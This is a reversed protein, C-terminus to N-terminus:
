TTEVVPGSQVSEDFYEAGDAMTPGYVKPAPTVVPESDNVQVGAVVPNIAILPYQTIPSESPCYLEAAGTDVMIAPAAEVPPVTPVKGPVGPGCGIVRCINAM